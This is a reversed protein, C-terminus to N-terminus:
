RNSIKEYAKLYQQLMAQKSYRAANEEGLKKWKLQEEPDSIKTLWHSLSQIDDPDILPASKGLVEPLSARNSSIVPCGCAQAELPPWGFGEFYSPFVFVTAASYLAALELDDVKGLDLTRSQLDLERVLESLNENLREGCFVLQSSFREASGAFAKILGARNKRIHSSGVHLVFGQKWNLEPFRALARGIETENQKKFVPEVASAIVFDLGISKRKPIVRNLDNLTAQSVCIIQEACKLGLLILGQLLKGLSSPPCSTDEGLAARLAGLDHCSVITTKHPLVLKYFANGQDCIHVVDFKFSDLFLLFPFIFLKDIYALYKKFASSRANQRVLIARPNILAVEITAKELSLGRFLMESFRLMSEQKDPLYNAVLLVRLRRKKM